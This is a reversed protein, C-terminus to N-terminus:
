SFKVIERPMLRMLILYLTVCRYPGMMSKLYGRSDDLLWIWLMRRLTKTKEVRLYFLKLKKADRMRTM